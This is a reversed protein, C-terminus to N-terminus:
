ECLREAMRRTISKVEKTLKDTAFTRGGYALDPLVEGVARDIAEPIRGALSAAMKKLYSLNMGLQGALGQMQAAGM